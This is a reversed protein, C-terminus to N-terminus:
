FVEADYHGNSDDHTAEELFSQWSIRSCGTYDMGVRLAAADLTATGGFFLTLGDHESLIHM